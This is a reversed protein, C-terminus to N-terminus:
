QGLISQITKKLLEPRVPKRLVQVNTLQYQEAKFGVDGTAILAPTNELGELSRIVRIADVGNSDQDLHLDVVLLDPRTASSRMLQMAELVSSFAFATYGWLSFMDVMFESSAEDNEIIFLNPADTNKM